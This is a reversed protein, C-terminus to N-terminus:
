ETGNDRSRHVMSLLMLFKCALRERRNLHSRALEMADYLLRWDRNRSIRGITRTAERRLLLQYEQGSFRDANKDLARLVYFQCASHDFSIDGPRPLRSWWTALPSTSWRGASVLRMFLDLDHRRLAAQALAGESPRRSAYVYITGRQNTGTSRIEVTKIGRLILEAWPQRIGIAIRQRDLPPDNM